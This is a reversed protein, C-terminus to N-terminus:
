GRDPSAKGILRAHRAIRGPNERRSRGRRGCACAGCRWDSRWRRDSAWQRAAACGSRCRGRVRAKTEDVRGVGGRLVAHQGSAHRLAGREIQSAQEAPLADIRVRRRGIRLRDAADEGWAAHGVRGPAHTRQLLAHHPWLVHPRHRWVLDGPAAEFSTISSFAASKPDAAEECAVGLM